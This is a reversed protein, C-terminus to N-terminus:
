KRPHHRSLLHRATEIMDDMRHAVEIRGALEVAPEAEDDAPAVSMGPARVISQALKRAEEDLRHRHRLRFLQAAVPKRRQEPAEILGEKRMPLAQRQQQKLTAVRAGIRGREISGSDAGRLRHAELPFAFPGVTRADLDGKRQSEGAVVPGGPHAKRGALLMKRLIEPIRGELLM